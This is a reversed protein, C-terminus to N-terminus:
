RIADHCTAEIIIYTMDVADRRKGEVRSILRRSARQRPYLVYKGGEITCAEVDTAQDFIM